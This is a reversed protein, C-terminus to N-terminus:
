TQPVKSDPFQSNGGSAGPPVPFGMGSGVSNGPAPPMINPMQVGIPNQYMNSNSRNYPAPPGM